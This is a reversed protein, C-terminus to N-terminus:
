VAKTIALSFHSTFETNMSIYHGEAGSGKFLMIHM